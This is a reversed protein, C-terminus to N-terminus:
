LGGGATSGLVTVKNSSGWVVNEDALTGWVINEDALTGWVINEGDFFGLLGTGWVINEAWDVLTGWVINEGLDIAGWWTTDDSPLSTGWVISEGNESVSAWVHDLEGAGWVVSDAWASQNLEVLSPGSLIRTGWILQQSWPAPVGDFTSEPPATYTLWGMGSARTTDAFYALTLAGVGNTLGTGQTLADYLAGNDDNLPTATYQLMAKVANPTLQPVGAWSTREKPRLSDQYTQWRQYAGYSNAELMVAVLGSVVGTAMSSGSLRLYKGAPDDNVILWPYTVALTSGDVENSVLNQGPALIDPKAFGDYWSPGRSSYRAVRDDVRAVTGGTNAAGVTIASPANGPSAIGAYGAVGDASSGNNGSAVVVILGARVAAEVAQVLPDTLASEYIPHGLSLNVVKVNYRAKNEVVFQLARIVDSTQGTGKKDLVKLALFKVGPAVGEYKRSSTVGSSGILGAVHTGHGYDDYPAELVPLQGNTFDYFGLIRGSFDASDQIGSDLVAVTLSGGSFWNGVGLLRKVTASAESADGEASATPSSKSNSGFPSVNADISISDVGADNILDQLDDRRVRASVAGILDHQAYVVGGHAKLKRTVASKAGPKLRVIVKRHGDASSQSLVKDTKGSRVGSSAAAAAPLVCLLVAAGWVAKNSLTGM